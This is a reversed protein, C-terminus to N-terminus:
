TGAKAASHACQLCHELQSISEGIYDGTGREQLLKIIDDVIKGANASMTASSISTPPNKELEYDLLFSTQGPILNEKIYIRLSSGGVM